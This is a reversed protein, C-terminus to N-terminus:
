AAAAWRHAGATACCSDAHKHGEDEDSSSSSAEDGSENGSSDTDCTLMPRRYVRPQTRRGLTL